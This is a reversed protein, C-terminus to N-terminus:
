CRPPRRRERGLVYLDRRVPGTATSAPRPARSHHVAAAARPPATGLAAGVAQDLAELTAYLGEVSAEGLLAAAAVDNELVDLWVIPSPGGRPRQEAVRGGRRDALRQYPACVVKDFWYAATPRSENGLARPAPKM